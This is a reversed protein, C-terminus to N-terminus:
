QRARVIYDSGNGSGTIFVIFEHGSVTDFPSGGPYMFHFGSMTVAGASAGNVIRLEMNLMSAPAAITIGAVNNVLTQKLGLTPDLTITAGNAPTGLDREEDSTAIVNIVSILKEVAKDIAACWSGFAQQAQGNKPDIWQKSPPQLPQTTQAVKTM